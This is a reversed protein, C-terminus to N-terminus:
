TPVYTVDACKSRGSATMCGYMGVPEPNFQAHATCYLALVVKPRGCLHSFLVAAQRRGSAM